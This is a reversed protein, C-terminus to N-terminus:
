QKALKRLWLMDIFFFPIVTAMGFLWSYGIGILGMSRFLFFYSVFIGVVIVLNRVILSIVRKEINIRTGQFYSMMVLLSGVSFIRLLPAGQVAYAPGLLGLIFPSFVWFFASAPVLIALTYLLIRRESSAYESTRRSGESLLASSAANPVIHLLGAVMYATYYYATSEAGLTETIIIPFVMTPLMRVLFAVYNGFSFPLMEMILREHIVLSPRYLKRWVLVGGGFLVASVAGIVWSGFIGLVGFGVLLAPLALKVISFLAGKIVSFFSIGYSLFIDDLFQFLVTSVVGTVFAAAIWYDTRLFSLSPAFIGTLMIFLSAVVAALLLMVLAISNITHNPEKSSPLFRVLWVGLGLGSISALLSMASILTSAIGIEHATFLRTCLTWFLFGLGTLVVTNVVLWFSNRVMEDGHLVHLFRVGQRIM